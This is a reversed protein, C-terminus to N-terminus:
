HPPPDRKCLKYRDANSNKVCQLQQISAEQVSGFPFSAWAVGRGESHYLPAGPTTTNIYDERVKATSTQTAHSSHITM